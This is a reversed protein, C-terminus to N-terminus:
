QENNEESKHREKNIRRRRMSRNTKKVLAWIGAITAFFTGLKILQEIVFNVETHWDIQLVVCPLVTTISFTFVVSILTMYWACSRYPDIILTNFMTVFFGLVGIASKPTEEAVKIFIDMKSM